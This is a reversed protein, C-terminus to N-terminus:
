NNAKPNITIAGRSIAERLLNAIDQNNSTAAPSSGNTSFGKIIDGQRDPSIQGYSVFTTLVNEHGLNQSWAKYQEPTTCIRQGLDTVTNRFVHPNFYPLGVNEFATKFIQRMATATAWFEPKLGSPEFRYNSNLTVATQPFVPNDNGYLKITRLYTVWDTVIKILDDGVPFFFTEIAKSFKTNMELPNQTIHQRDLNIHKLRLSIIASDRMGSVLAFAMLAQNRKDIDTTTPMALIAKRVQEVTPWARYKPAKAARADKDSLNLYDIDTKRIRTKYGQQTALWGFFDKLANLTQLMTSKSIVDGGRQAKTTALQKKFGMAQEKNFSGLDKYGTYAEYRNIAKAMGNVTTSARSRAEKQHRLYDRKLRENKANFKKSQTM